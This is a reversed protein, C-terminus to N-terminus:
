HPGAWINKGYALLVLPAIENTQKAFAPVPGGQCRSAGASACYNTWVGGGPAQASWLSQEIAAKAVQGRSGWSAAGGEGLANACMLSFALDRTWYVGALDGDERTKPEIFGSGDWQNLALDFMQQATARNGLLVQRLCGYKLLDRVSAQGIPALDANGNADGPYDTGIIPTPLSDFEASAPSPYQRMRLMQWAGPRPLRCRPDDSGMGGDNAPIQGVVVDSETDPCFAPFHESWAHRWSDTLIRGLPPAYQTLAGAGYVANDELWYTRQLQQLRRNSRGAGNLGDPVASLLRMQGSNAYDRVIWRLVGALREDLEPAPLTSVLPSAHRVAAVAAVAAGGGTRLAATLSQEESYDAGSASQAACAASWGFLFGLM